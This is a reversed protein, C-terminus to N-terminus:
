KNFYMFVLSVITSSAIGLFFGIIREMMKDNKQNALQMKLVTRIVEELPLKDTTIIQNIQNSELRKATKQKYDLYIAMAGMAMGFIPFIFIWLEEM